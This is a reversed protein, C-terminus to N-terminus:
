TWILSQFTHAQSHLDMYTTSLHTSTLTCGSTIFLQTITLTRGYRNFLTHKYAYTWIHNFASHMGMNSSLHTSTLTGRYRHNFPTHKHAYMCIPSQFTHAQSHVNTWIPSQFTHTQPCVNMNTISHVDM